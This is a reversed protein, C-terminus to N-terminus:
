QNDGEFEARERAWRLEDSIADLQFSRIKDNEAWAAELADALAHIEPWTEAPWEARYAAVDDPTLVGGENADEHAPEPDDRGM